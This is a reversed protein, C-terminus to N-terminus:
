DCSEDTLCAWTLTSTINAIINLVTIKNINLVSRFVTIKDLFFFGFKGKFGAWCPHRFADLYLWLDSLSLYGVGHWLLSVDIRFIVTFLSGSAHWRICFNIFGM